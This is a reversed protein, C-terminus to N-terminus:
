HYFIKQIEKSISKIILMRPMKHLTFLRSPKSQFDSLFSTKKLEPSTREIQLVPSFNAGVRIM